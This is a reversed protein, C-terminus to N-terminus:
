FLLCLKGKKEPPLLLPTPQLLCISNIYNLQKGNIVIDVVIAQFLLSKAGTCLFLWEGPSLSKYTAPLMEIWGSRFKAFADSLLLRDM